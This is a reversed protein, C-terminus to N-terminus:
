RKSMRAPQDLRVGGACGCRETTGMAGCLTDVVAARNMYVSHLRHRPTKGPASEHLNWRAGYDHREPKANRAAVHRYDNTCELQRFRIRRGGFASGACGGAAARGMAAIDVLNAYAVPKSMMDLAGAASRSHCQGSNCGANVIVSDYVASFTAERAPDAAGSRVPGAGADSPLAYCIFHDNPRCTPDTWVMGSKVVVRGRVVAAAGGGITGGTEFQTVVEGTKANMVYLVTDNPVFLLGNALSVAGWTTAEFRKSWTSKGAAAELRHLVAGGAIGNNAVVYFAEGDFAGNIFIGGHLANHTPALDDRSWVIKGTERDLVWFTGGKDGAATLRLGAVDAMIPNAGFDLDRVDLDAFLDAASYADVRSQFVWRREGSALDFAHIADGNPGAVTFNNGTTAFAMGAAVDVSITSWVSAGNEGGETSDPVTHYIWREAGTAIDLARVGGRVGNCDAAYLSAEALNREMGVYLTDGVLIPSSEGACTTDDDCNRVPGWVTTGDAPNLKYVLPPISNQVYVFGGGYAPSASGIIDNRFWLQKGTEFDLAYTGGSTLLFVKDDAIVPTGVPIGSVTFRWKEALQKANDVSLTTEHPNFYTNREDYGMMRWAAPEARSRMEPAAAGSSNSTTAVGAAGATPNVAAAGASSKGSSGDVAAAAM